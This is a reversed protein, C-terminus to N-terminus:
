NFRNFNLYLGCGALSILSISGIILYLVMNDITEPNEIIKQSNNKNDTESNEIIKQSNNDSEWIAYLTQTGNVNLETIVKGNKTLSWGKFKKGSPAIFANEPLTVEGTALIDKMSGTGGNADFSVKNNALFHIEQASAAVIDLMEDFTYETKPITKFYSYIYDPEGPPISVATKSAILNKELLSVNDLKIVDDFDVEDDAVVLFSILHNSHLTVNSNNIEAGLYAFLSIYESNIVINSDKISITPIYLSSTFALDMLSTPLEWEYLQSFDINCRTIKVNGFAAFTALDKADITSDVLDIESAMFLGAIGEANIVSNIIKINGDMSNIFADNGDELSFTSNNATLDGELLLDTVSIGNSKYNVNEFTIEACEAVVGYQYNEVEIYSNKVNVSETKSFIGIYTYYNEEGKIKINSNEININGFNFIGSAQDYTVDSQDITANLKNINLTGDPIYIGLYHGGIDLSSGDEGTINFTVVDEATSLDFGLAANMSDSVYGGPSKITNKGKLVVNITKEDFDEFLIYDNNYGSLTLTNTAKDFTATGEGGSNYIDLTGGNIKVSSAFINPVFVFTLIVTFFVLLLIKSNKRM